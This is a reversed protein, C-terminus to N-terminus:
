HRAEREGYGHSVCSPGNSAPRERHPPVLRIPTEAEELTPVHEDGAPTRRVVQARPVRLGFAFAVAVMQPVDPEAGPVKRTSHVRITLWAPHSPALCSSM